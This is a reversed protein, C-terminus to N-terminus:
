LSSQGRLRGGLGDSRLIVLPLGSSSKLVLHRNYGTAVAPNASGDSKEESTFPCINADNIKIFV